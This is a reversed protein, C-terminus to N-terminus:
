QDHKCPKNKKSVAPPKKCDEDEGQHDDNGDHDGEGSMVVEPQSSSSASARLITMRGTLSAVRVPKGAAFLRVPSGPKLSFSASADRLELVPAGGEDLRVRASSRPRLVVRSGDLFSISVPAVGAVIEDGALVPWTPAGIPPTDAGRLTFTNTSGARAVTRGNAMIFGLALLLSLQAAARLTYRRFAVPDLRPYPRRHSGLLTLM